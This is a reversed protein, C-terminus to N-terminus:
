RGDGGIFDALTTGRGFMNHFAEERRERKELTRETPCLEPHLPNGNGDKAQLERRRRTITEFAPAARLAQFDNFKIKIGCFQRCYLWALIRDDGRADPHTRLIERVRAKVTETREVMKAGSPSDTM